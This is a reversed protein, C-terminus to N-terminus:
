SSVYSSYLWFPVTCCYEGFSRPRQSSLLCTLACLEEAYWSGDMFFYSMSFQSCRFHRRRHRSVFPHSSPADSALSPSRPLIARGIDTTRHKSISRPSVPNMTPKEEIPIRLRKLAVTNHQYLGRFVDAMGGSAWADRDNGITVGHIFLDEPLQGSAASLQILLSRVRRCFHDPVLYGDLWQVSM